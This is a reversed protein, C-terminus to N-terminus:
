VRALRRLDMEDRNFLHSLIVNVTPKESARGGGDRFAENGKRLLRWRPQRESSWAHADLEPREESGATCLCGDRVQGLRVECFEMGVEFFEMGVEFFERGVECFEM